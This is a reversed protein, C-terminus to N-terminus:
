SKGAQPPSRQTTRKHFASTPSVTRYSPNAKLLSRAIKQLDGPEPLVMLTNKHLATSFLNASGKAQTCFILCGQFLYFFTFPGCTRPSHKAAWLQCRSSPSAGPPGWVKTGPLAPPGRDRQGDQEAGCVM